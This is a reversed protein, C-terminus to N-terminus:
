ELEAVLDHADSLDDSRVAANTFWRYVPLLLARAEARRNQRQWLRALDTAARMELMRAGQQRAVGLAQTLCAEAKAAGGDGAALLLAAKRRHLEADWYRIGSKEGVTLAEEVQLLGDDYRGAAAFAEALMDFYVPFDEPTGSARQAALGDILDQMGANADGLMSMAWGRFLRGKGIYDGLGRDEAFRIMGEALRAVEDPRRRYRNLVVAYDLAHAISGAHGLRRACDGAIEVRLAAEQCHGTLWLSLAAEGEACVRIDHGGYISSLSAHKHEEYLALGETIHHLCAGHDGLMFNTAWLSHHAQLVLGPEDLGNALRLLNEARERGTRFNMSIRWWGWFAAFHLPSQPLRSCVELARAYTKEVEPSGAGNLAILMTAMPLLLELERVNREDGPALGTLLDLGRQLHSVAELYASARSAKQAAKQWFGVARRPENSESYHHALLEPSNRASEPFSAELVEAIRLHLERRRSILLSEYAADQILAHKFVYTAQPPAGRAFVLESTTLRDLSPQLVTDPLATVEALLAYSFRRGIVSGIQAIEKPLALQDLRAMLSDHITAPIARKPLPGDLVYGTEGIRMLGSELVTKTLEEVFLPVGGTKAVIQTLVADPLSKGALITHIFEETRRRGLRDLTINIVYPRDQWSQSCKPRCTAVILLRHDPAREVLLDLFEQSTPDIWQLDEFVVLQPATEAATELRGALASLTMDKQKQASLISSSPEVADVSLLAALLPLTQALGRPNGGLWDRLKEILRPDDDGEEIGADRTLWEVIPHLATNRHFPSCSYHTVNARDVAIADEFAVTLRSKGIGPEGSLLIVGGRGTCAARWCQLFLGLERERGVLPTLPTLSSARAAEFRSRADAARVVRWAQQPEAFGALAFRGLDDYEFRGGLLRHTNDAIVVTDPAAAGQLRAALNPTEGIATREEAGADGIINGVVVVGTAIGIRVALKAQRHSVIAANLPAVAEIIALATRVAREADDEHAQPHGFYALIGDGLYQAVSGGFEAVLGACTRQYRRLVDLMDEPDLKRALATSGVMDCFMVTLQRREARGRPAPSLPREGPADPKPPQENAAAEDLRRIARLLKKRHGLPIGLKELDAERLDALVEWDIAHAAFVECYRALELRSLWADIRPDRM